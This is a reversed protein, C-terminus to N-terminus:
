ARKKRFSTQNVWLDVLRNTIRRPYNSTSSGLAKLAARVQGWAESVPPAPVAGWCVVQRRDVAYLGLPPPGAPAAEEGEEAPAPAPPAEIGYRKSFGRDDTLLPFPLALERQVAKLPDLKATSVGLVSATLEKLGDFQGALFALDQKVREDQPDAFFYLVLATRPVEDRLMLLVDETSSLDFNPAPDGNALAPM